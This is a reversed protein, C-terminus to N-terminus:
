MFTLLIDYCISLERLVKPDPKNMLEVEGFGQIGVYFFVTTKIDIPAECILMLQLIVAAKIFVMTELYARSAFEGVVV